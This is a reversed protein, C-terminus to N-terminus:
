GDSDDETRGCESCPTAEDRRDLRLPLLNNGEDDVDFRGRSLGARDSRSIGYRRLVALLAYRLPALKQDKLPSGEPAAERIMRAAVCDDAFMSGEVAAGDHVATLHMRFLPDDYLVRFVDEVLDVTPREHTDTM